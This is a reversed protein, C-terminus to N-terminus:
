SFFKKFIGKATKSDLDRFVANYNPYNHLNVKINAMM